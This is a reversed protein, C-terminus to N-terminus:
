AVPCASGDLVGVGPDLWECDVHTHILINTYAPAVRGQGEGKCVGNGRAMLSKVKVCCSLQQKCLMLVADLLM